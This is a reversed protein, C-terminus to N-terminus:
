EPLIAIKDHKKKWSQRCQVCKLDVIGNMTSKFHHFTTVQVTFRNLEDM